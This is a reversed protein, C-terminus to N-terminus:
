QTSWLHKGRVVHKLIGSGASAPWGEKFEVLALTGPSMRRIKDYESSAIVDFLLREFGPNHGIMMVRESDAFAHDLLTNLTSTSAGYIQPVFRVLADLEPHLSLLPALTERTRQAPSCLISQPLDLNEDVWEAVAHAHKQGASALKRPFDECGQTWPEAEAHRFIALEQM